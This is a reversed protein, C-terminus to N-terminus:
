VDFLGYERGGRRQRRGYTTWGDRDEGSALGNIYSM